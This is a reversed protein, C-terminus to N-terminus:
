QERFREVRVAEDLEVGNYLHDCLHQACWPALLVGRSGLGNLVAQQATIRGVIPRRDKSAPRVGAWQDLVEIPTTILRSLQELLYRRAEATPGSWVDTWAFTAGIRYIDDGVPLVYIGRHVMTNLQLGPIRVTLGEGRVPVLGPTAAFPGSCHVVYPATHGFVEVGQALSHIDSASVFREELRGAALWNARHLKLLKQVDLWACRKILGHGYPRPLTGLSNDDADAISLLRALEPDRMRLRWIGAEQATPFIAALPMPHWFSADYRMELDRYFAGAIAVMESARWSLVTRRLVVPNVMGAAVVSARGAQPADLVLVRLGRSALTESLVAGALGQGIILADHTFSTTSM